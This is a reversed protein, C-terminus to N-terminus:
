PAAPAPADPPPPPADGSPDHRRCYIPFAIVFGCMKRHHQPQCDPDASSQDCNAPPPPPDAYATAPSATLEAALTTAVFLKTWNM